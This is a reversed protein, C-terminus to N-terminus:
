GICHAATIVFYEDLIAGGCIHGDENQLSVQYPFDGENAPRGGVIRDEFPSAGFGVICKISSNTNPQQGFSWKGQFCATVALLISIRM